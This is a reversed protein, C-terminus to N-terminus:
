VGPGLRGGHKEREETLWPTVRSIGYVVLFLPILGFLDRWVREAILDLPAIPGFVNEMPLPRGWGPADSLVMRVSVYLGVCVPGVSALVVGTIILPMVLKRQLWTEPFPRGIWMGIGVLACGPAVFSLSGLMIGIAMGEVGGLFGNGLYWLFTEFTRATSKWKAVAHVTNIVGAITQSVSYAFLTGTVIKRGGVPVTM